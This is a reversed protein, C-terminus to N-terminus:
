IIWRKSDSYCVSRRNRLMMTQTGLLYSEFFRNPSLFKTLQEYLAKAIKTNGLSDLCISRKLIAEGAYKTKFDVLKSAEEFSAAAMLLKGKKMLDVGEDFLAQFAKKIEPEVYLGRKKEFKLLAAAIEADRQESMEKSEGPNSPDITRGGGYTESINSPRPFVGWTSVKPRYSKDVSIVEGGRKRRKEEEALAFEAPRMDSAIRDVTEPLFSARRDASGAFTPEINVEENTEVGQRFGPSDEFSTGKNLRRRFEENSLRRASEQPRELEDGFPSPGSSGVPTESVGRKAKYAQAKAIRELIDNKPANASEETSKSQEDHQSFIRLCQRQKRRLNPFSTRDNLIQVGITRQM